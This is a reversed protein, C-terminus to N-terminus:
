QEIYHIIILVVTNESILIYDNRWSSFVLIWQIPRFQIYSDFLNYHCFKVIWKNITWHHTLRLEIQKSSKASCIVKVM